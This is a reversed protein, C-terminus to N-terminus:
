EDSEGSPSAGTSRRRNVETEGDRQVITVDDDSYAVTRSGDRNVNLAAAVNVRGEVDAEELARRVQERIQRGLEGM